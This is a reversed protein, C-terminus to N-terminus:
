RRVTARQRAAGRLGSHGVHPKLLQRVSVDRAYAPVNALVDGVHDDLRLKGAEVLSLIAAATFQKTVSALRFSTAPTV